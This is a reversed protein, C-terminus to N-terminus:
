KLIFGTEYSWFLLDLHDISINVKEGYELFKREIEFYKNLSITKPIEDIVECRLLNKLLHRDIIALNRYGINRMFHSSEKLGIGKVLKHIDNRKDFPTSESDLINMVNPYIEKLNILRKAKQNHFRIYHESSAIFETPDFDVNQFDSLELKEQVLSANRASSQPTLLCYCLEYFYKSKPVEAYEILTQEIDNKIKNYFDNLKKPLKKM